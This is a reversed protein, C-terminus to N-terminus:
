TRLDFIYIYIYKYTYLLTSVVYIHLLRDFVSKITEYFVVYLM